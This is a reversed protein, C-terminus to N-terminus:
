ENDQELYFNECMPQICGKAKGFWSKRISSGCKDCPRNTNGEEIIRNLPASPPAPHQNLTPNENQKGAVTDALDSWSDIPSNFKNFM